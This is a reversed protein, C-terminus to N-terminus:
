WEGAMERAAWLRDSDTMQAEREARRRREYAAEEAAEEAQAEEEDLRAHCPFCTFPAFTKGADNTWERPAGEAKEGCEQCYDTTDNTTM